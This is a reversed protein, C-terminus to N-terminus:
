NEAAFNYFFDSKVCKSGMKELNFKAFYFNYSYKCHIRVM